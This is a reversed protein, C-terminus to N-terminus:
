VHEYASVFSSGDTSTVGRGVRSEFPLYFGSIGGSGDPEFGCVRKKSRVELYRYQLAHLGILHQDFFPEAVFETGFTLSRHPAPSRRIANPM